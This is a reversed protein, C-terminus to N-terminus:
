STALDCLGMLIKGLKMDINWRDAHIKFLFPWCLNLRKKEWSTIKM